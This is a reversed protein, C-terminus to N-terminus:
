LVEKGDVLLPGCVGVPLPVYGVVNECNVGYIQDYDFHEAPLGDFAASSKGIRGLETATFKTLLCTGQYECGKSVLTAVDCM